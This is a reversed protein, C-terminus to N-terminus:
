QRHVLLGKRNSMATKLFLEISRGASLPVCETQGGLSLNNKCGVAGFNNLLVVKSRLLRNPPELLLQVAM